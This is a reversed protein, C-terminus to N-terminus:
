LMDLLTQMLEDTVTIVRASATYAHQYIITNALEEDLNVGSIATARQLYGEMLITDNEFKMSASVTIAANFGLIDGAYNGFTLTNAPLGGAATFNMAQNGLAALQQAISHDGSYREYTYLPLELPDAPQNSRELNGTSILSPTALIDKRVAMNVASNKLATGIATSEHNVFFDNLEFYSSFGRLTAPVAPTDASLGGHSSSIQDIALTYISDLTELKLYGSGDGYSGNTKAIENGDEDVLLARLYPSSAGSAQLIGDGAAVSLPAFRDNMTNTQPSTIRYFVQTTSVTGDPERVAMDVLIDYYTSNANGSLNASFTGNDGTRDRDGALVTEYVPLATQAAVATVGGAGALTVVDIDFTNGNIAQVVFYGDFEAGPIGDVAVGPDNLRVRDGVQLGHASTAAVRVRNSGATTQFTTVPDLQISPITSTVNSIDVAMDDFISVGNIWFDGSDASINELDFDFEITPAGGLGPVRNSVMALQIQNINGLSVKRVPTAFYNNIEDIITQVTPSGAGFGSNLSGLDMTLPRLGGDEDPFAAQAPTGDENLVAIMVSGTWDSRQSARVERTGTLEAAAPYGSGNNHILNFEERLTYALTDLQELMSPFLEDRLQMLGFIRGNFFSAEVESSVAHTTIATPEGFPRGDTDLPQVTIAPIASDDILSTITNSRPYELQYQVEDLISLGQGIYVHVVGSKQEYTSIDIHEALVKLANDRQDFLNAKSSGFADAEAIAENIAALETLTDNIVKVSIKIDRDAEFRLEELSYALNSFELALTEAAEVVAARTSVRDPTDAMAQLANFFIEIQEDISNEQGPEGLVIQARELYDDIVESRSLESTHRNITKILYNDVKRVIDEIRVGQGKGDIAVSALDVVQRSYGETNANAINNSIVAMTQQNVHLGQLATNLALSLSM